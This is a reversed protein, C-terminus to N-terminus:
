KEGLVKLDIHIKLVKQFKKNEKGKNTWGYNKLNDGWAIYLRFQFIFEERTKIM